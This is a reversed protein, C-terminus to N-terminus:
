NHDLLTMENQLSQIQLRMRHLRDRQVANASRYVAMLENYQDELRQQAERYEQDHFHGQKSGDILQEQAFEVTQQCQYLFDEMSKRTTM